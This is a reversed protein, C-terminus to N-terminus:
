GTLCTVTTSEEEDQLNLQPVNAHLFRHLLVSTVVVFVGVQGDVDALGLSEQHCTRPAESSM